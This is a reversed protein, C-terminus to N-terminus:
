GIIIDTDICFIDIGFALDNIWFFLGTCKYKEDYYEKKLGHKEGNKFPIEYWLKGNENYYKQIGHIKDNKFPIESRINGNLFYDKGVGNIRGNKYPTESRINGNLFYDRKIETKLIM